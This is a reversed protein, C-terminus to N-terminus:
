SKVQCWSSFANIKCHEIEKEKWRKKGSADSPKPTREISARNPGRPKEKKCLAVLYFALNHCNVYKEFDGPDVTFGGVFLMGFLDFQQGPRPPGGVVARGVDAPAGAGALDLRLSKESDRSNLTPDFQILVSRSYRAKVLV